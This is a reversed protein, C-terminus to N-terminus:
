ELDDDSEDLLKEAQDAFAEDDITLSEYEERSWIEIKGPLGALMLEKKFGIDDLFRKPILFRNNSDLSVEITGMFFKRMFMNHERNYSKLKKRIKKVQEGWEEMTYMVICKVFLDKRLVFSDKEAGDIQKKLAAPFSVRGKTDPRCIHVGIFAEM